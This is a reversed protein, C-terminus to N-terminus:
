QVVVVSVLLTDPHQLVVAPQRCAVFGSHVARHLGENLHQVLVLIIERSHEAHGRAEHNLLVLYVKNGIEAQQKKNEFM